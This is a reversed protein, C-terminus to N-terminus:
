PALVVEQTEGGALSVKVFMSGGQPNTGVTWSIGAVLYFAGDAVNDFKFYGQADCLSTRTIKKYGPEDPQFALGGTGGPRYGKTSNGYIGVVRENAYPTAPVLLVPRGACTVVGGGAQRMLASGKVTNPGRVLMREAEAVDFQASITILRPPTPPNLVCGSLALVAVGAALLERQM